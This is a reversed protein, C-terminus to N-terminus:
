LIMSSNVLLCMGHLDNLVTKKEGERMYQTLISKM